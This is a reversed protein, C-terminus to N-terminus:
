EVRKARYVLVSLLIMVLSLIPFIINFESFLPWIALVFASIIYLTLKNKALLERKIKDKTIIKDRIENELSCLVEEEEPLWDLDTCIKIIDKQDLLEVGNLEKSLRIAEQTFQSTTVFYIKQYEKHIIKKYARFIDQCSSECSPFNLFLKIFTDKSENVYVDESRSYFDDELFQSFLRSFFKGLDEINLLLLEKIVHNQRMTSMRKSVYRSFRFKQLLYIGLSILVVCGLACIISPWISWFIRIFFFYFFGFLVLRLFIFDLTRAVINKNKHFEKRFYRNVVKNELMFTRGGKYIIISLVRRM